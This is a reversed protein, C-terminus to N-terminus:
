ISCSVARDIIERNVSGTQGAFVPFHGRPASGLDSNLENYSEYWTGNIRWGVRDAFKDWAQKDYTRPKNGSEFYISKQVGLGFRNGSYQTWLSEISLLDSCPFSSIPQNAFLLSLTEIDADKWQQGKLFSELRYFKNGEGSFIVTEPSSQIYFPPPSSFTQNEYPPKSNVLYAITGCIAVIAISSTIIASSLFKIDSM